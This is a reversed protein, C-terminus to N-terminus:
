EIRGQEKTYVVLEPHKKPMPNSKLGYLAHVNKETALELLRQTIVGDLVIGYVSGMPVDQMFAILER